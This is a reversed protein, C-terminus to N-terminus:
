WGALLQRRLCPCYYCLYIFPKYTKDVRLSHRCSTCSVIIWVISVVREPNIGSLLALDENDFARM